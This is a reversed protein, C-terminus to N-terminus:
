IEAMEELRLTDIMEQDCPPRSVCHANFYQGEVRLIVDSKIAMDGSKWPVIKAENEQGPLTEVVQVGEIM